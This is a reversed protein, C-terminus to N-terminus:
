IISVGDIDSLKKLLPELLSARVSLEMRCTNDFTQSAIEVEGNKILKMVNNMAMYPFTFAVSEM